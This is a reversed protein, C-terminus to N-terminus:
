PAGFLLTGASCLDNGCRIEFTVRDPEPRRLHVQLPEGPAILRRFKLRSLRQLRPLDPWAARARQVVCELQVVGALVPQDPFHGRFYVLDAPATATCRWSTSGAVVDDIALADSSV